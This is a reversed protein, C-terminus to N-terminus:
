VQRLYTKLDCDNPSLDLIHAAEAVTQKRKDKPGIVLFGDSGIDQCFRVEAQITNKVYPNEGPRVSIQLPRDYFITYEIGNSTRSVDEVTTLLDKELEPHSSSHSYGSLEEELDGMDITDNIGYISCSVPM